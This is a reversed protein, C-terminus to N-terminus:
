KMIILSLVGDVELLSDVVVTEISSLEVDCLGLLLSVNSDLLVNVNRNLFQKM